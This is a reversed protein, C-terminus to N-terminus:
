VSVTGITGPMPAGIHRPNSPDVKPHPPRPPPQSRDAVGVARPQGNHEFFFSRPGDEHPPSQTVYRVVLSKGGEPAIPIAEGPQMGYFFVPTPVIAVNGYNRRHAAYDSFVKPYMLYSALQQDTVDRAARTSAELRSQQLDAPPLEDGVRTKRAAAGKLIKQQ